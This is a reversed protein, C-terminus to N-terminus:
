SKRWFINSTIEIIVNTAETKVNLLYFTIFNGYLQYGIFDDKSKEFKGLLALTFDPHGLQAAPAKL